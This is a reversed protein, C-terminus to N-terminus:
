PKSPPSVDHRKTRYCNNRDTELTLLHPDSCPKKSSVGALMFVSSISYMEQLSLGDPGQSKELIRSYLDPREPTNSLRRDVRDTTYKWHEWQKARLSPILGLVTEIVFKIFNNINKVVRLRTGFKINGFITKVWPSYEGDELMNLPEAFTLDGMIDFTTCNYMKLMNIDKGQQSQEALKTTLLTAWHKLLPEQEKLARDSFAHSVIKRQRGHTHHDATILGPTNNIGTGYFSPDKAVEAQGHKRFGYIDKWTQGTGVFSLSNPAIRVVNGYKQHLAPLDINDTGKLNTRMWPLFSFARSKPGPFKSLPGLFASYLNQSISSVFFLFAFACCISLLDTRLLVPSVIEQTITM